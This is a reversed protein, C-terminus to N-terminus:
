PIENLDAAGASLTTDYTEPWPHAPKFVNTLLPKLRSVMPNKALFPGAWFSIM